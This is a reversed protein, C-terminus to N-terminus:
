QAEENEPLFRLTGWLGVADDVKYVQGNIKFDLEFDEYHNVEIYDILDQATM